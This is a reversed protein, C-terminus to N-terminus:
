EQAQREYFENLTALTLRLVRPSREKRVAERLRQMSYPNGIARLAALAMIRYRDDKDSLYIDLVPAIVKKFTVKESHYIAIHIVDQLAQERLAEMPSELSMALQRDVHEVWEASVTPLAALAEIPDRVSEVLAQRAAMREAASKNDARAIVQAQAQAAGIFCGALLVITVGLRWSRASGNPADVVLGPAHGTPGRVDTLTQM